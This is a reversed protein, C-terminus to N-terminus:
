HDNVKDRIKKTLGLIIKNYSGYKKKYADHQRVCLSPNKETDIYEKMQQAVEKRIIRCDM